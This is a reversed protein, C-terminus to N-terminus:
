NGEVYIIGTKGNIYGERSIRGLRFLRADSEDNHRIIYEDGYEALVKIRGQSGTLDKIEAVEGTSLDMCYEPCSDKIYELMDVGMSGKVYGSSSQVFLKNGIIYTDYGICDYVKKEEGSSLEFETLVYGDSGTPKNYYCKGDHVLLPEPLNLERVEGNEPNLCIISERALEMQAAAFERILEEYGSSDQRSFEYIDMDEEGTKERFFQEMNIRKQYSLTKIIINNRSYGLVSATYDWGEGIVFERTNGNEIDIEYLVAKDFDTSTHIGTELDYDKGEILGIIYLYKVDLYESISTIYDGKIEAVRETNRGGTDSRMLVTVIYTMGDSDTKFETVTYYLKNGYLFIASARTSVAFCDETNHSCGAESCYVAKKGSEFDYWYTLFPYNGSNFEKYFFGKEELTFSPNIEKIFDKEINRKEQMCGSCLCAIVPLGTLCILLQRFIAM